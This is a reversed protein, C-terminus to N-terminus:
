GAGHPSCRLRRALAQGAVECHEASLHHAGHAVAASITAIHDTEDTEGNSSPAGHAATAANPAGAAAATRTATCAALGAAGAAPGATCGPVTAAPNASTAACHAYSTPAASDTSAAETGGRLPHRIPLTRSM